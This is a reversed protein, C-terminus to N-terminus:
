YIIFFIFIFIGIFFIISIYVYDCYRFSHTIIQTRKKHPSFGRLEMSKSLIIAHQLGSIIIPFLLNIGNKIKSYFSMTEYDIGRAKQAIIIRKREINLFEIFRLSLTTTICITAIPLKLYTLPKLLYELSFAFSDIDINSSLSSFILIIYLVRSGSNLITLIDKNFFYYNIFFISFFLPLSIRLMNFVISRKIKFFYFHVVLIPLLILNIYINYRSFITIFIFIFTTIFLTRPDFRIRM